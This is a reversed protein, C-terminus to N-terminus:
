QNCERSYSNYQSDDLPLTWLENPDISSNSAGADRGVSNNHLDMLAENLPQGYLLGEIEHGTGALWATLRNTEQTTRKMWESHRQADGIDNHSNPRIALEERAIESARNLNAPFDWWDGVALGLPDIRNVPNGGVYGYTNLGGALGIPDSTIYRGTAPDYYRFYNYHLGSEGDYYQGPFRFNVVTKQGDGDVDASDGGFAGGEWRWVITGNSDTGTRPTNLHDTHLYTITETAGNVDIQAVPQNDLWVYDRIPTGSVNTEAILNGSLDYHYVTSSSATVKRTRQGLANYTYTATLTGSTYIQFLRNANNYVFTRTGNQDTTLNGAADHTVTGSGVTNLQNSNAAYGYNTTVSNLTESLRNGNTDYGFDTIDIGVLADQTLRDLADYQYDRTDQTTYLSLVNGTFDYVYYRTEPATLAVKSFRYEDQQKDPLHYSVRRYKYSHLDGEQKQWVDMYDKDVFVLMDPTLSNIEEISNIETWQSHASAGRLYFRYHSGTVLRDADPKLTAVVVTQVPELNAVYRFGANTLDAKAPLHDSDTSAVPGAVAGYLTTGVIQAGSTYLSSDVVLNGSSAVTSTYFITGNRLYNVTSGIREVRMIDGSAYSGFTGRSAGNEFVYITPGALYIAYNISAYTASANGNSLGLMRFTNTVVATFDVAGDAPIYEASAAGANNWATGATKTLTGDAAVSVGVLDVWTLSPGVALTTFSANASTTLNGSADQSLVQYQYATQPTLGTFTVSHSTVMQSDLPTTTQSGGVLGYTVKSTANENTSWKITASDDGASVVQYTIAPATTDPVAGYLTANVIQAGITYSSTDVVLSGSSAITSIYFISGNRLYNVTSGIREVRMIDGSAYSGFTGRSAGNEYVYLTTGALYIAYNISAYTASANGNSLGVMRFTNTAMATFEVAGDGPISEASAAGSNNWATSATKTLTNNGAISVGVLDIWTPSVGPAPAMTTFSAIASNTQNGSADQSIVQYQYTTSTTLNNLTVSHSTVLQSGLPTTTQNGGVLGYTVQSTANEDTTWTVTARDAGANVVVASIVPATTDPVAGLLVPNIIQAGYTYLSSDVVLNGSSTITSTYFINGNRLYNVTNGIREVRLIDGNAYNGFTGRPVGNEYVYLTTNYLYIAYGISQYTASANGNSLGLMYYPSISGVTFEVAGDGPITGISAAGANGWANAATKTLSGDAAVSVGVLDTWTVAITVPPPPANAVTPDTGQQYETLNSIGDADADANADGPDQPNLGYNLEWNDPIGDGDSDPGEWRTPDSAQLYENLNSIGDGDLDLQADSANFPDLGYQLEWNDPMGDQDSDAEITVTVNAINSTLLGDSVQYPFSDNGSFGPQPTYTITGDPNLATSGSAGQGLLSISLPDGEVDSDNVLVAVIVPKNVITTFTDDNAQPATGFPPAAQTASLTQSLLRGQQDFSRTDILSNGFTKGTELNDARYNVNSVIPISVGNLTTNISTANRISDRAIDVTRGGPYTTRTLNDDADYAYQTTYSIGLETRVSQLTNGFADYSYSTTGGQDVSQCLRGIGYGCNLGSDYTFGLDEQTGPYDITTVRGLTDYSYNVTISRADTVSTLNGAADHVYSRAGSDPSTENLMNGLDDYVYQTTTANPTTVKILRDNTDFDYVTTGSLADITTSLRNLADYTNTTTSNNPDTQSVLNGVADYVVQTLSGASNISSLRDRADFDLQVQRVLVGSPDRAVESNRNGNEDYNYEIRNGLNDTISRLYHAADYSLTLTVGTPTIATLLQGLNDYSYSTVRAAGQPPTVTIQTPRQRVDYQYSTVVGNSDTMTLVNGHSDYANYTITHGLANFVTKRMGRNNVQVSVKPYYTLTTIDSVDTRPGDIQSVRGDVTYQISLTRPAVASGDTKFGASSIQTPLKPYATDTYNITTAALQGVAVSSRKIQTPLRYNAHWNTTITRAETTGAAETRSAVLGRAGNVYTTTNGNFDTSSALFGNADYSLSNYQGGCSSCPEGSISTNKVVNHQTVFNYTNSVGKANTVTTTGDTNYVLTVKEKGGAHESSIARGQTDYAWTAYRDGNADTIGTLAQPFNVDEYLYYRTTFDPWTISALNKNADYTYGYQGGDPDTMLNVQNQANYAFTLTHGLYGTVSTLRNQTDYSLTQTQESRNTISILRGNVDYTEVTEASTIYRWGAPNGSTDILSELRDTVDVDPTWVTGSLNFEYSKGNARFVTASNNFALISRDYFGRWNKGFHVDGNVSTSNYYRKFVLTTAGLGQYDVETQYKNGTGQNIPNGVPCYNGPPGLNKLTKFCVAGAPCTKTITDTESGGPGACQTTPKVHNCKDGGLYTWTHCGPSNWYADHFTGGDICASSASSYSQLATHGPWYLFPSVEAALSTTNLVCALLLALLGQRRLNPLKLLSM